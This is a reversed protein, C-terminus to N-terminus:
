SARSIRWGISRNTGALKQITMDWGIGLPLPPGTWITNQANTFVSSYVLRQTGSANVKEYLRFIFQDGAAMANLDLWPTYIGDATQPSGINYAADAPLSYETDSITASDDFEALTLPM